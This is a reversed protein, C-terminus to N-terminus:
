NEERLNGNSFSWGPIVIRVEEASVEVEASVEEAEKLVARLLPVVDIEPIEVENFFVKKGKYM